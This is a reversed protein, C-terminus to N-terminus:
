SDGIQNPINFEAPPQGPMKRGDPCAAQVPAYQGADRASDDTTGLVSSGVAPARFYQIRGLSMRAFRLGCTEALQEDTDMDGIFLSEQLNISWCAEAQRILGPLPKRCDCCGVDHPCAYIADIRAGREALTDCMQQHIAALEDLRLLGRAVCRQNTIVIVLFGLANFLRIWDVIEPLIQFESWSLVYEGTAPSVNIVGDRDLFVCRRM